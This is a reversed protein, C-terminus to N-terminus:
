NLTGHVWQASYLLDHIFFQHDTLFQNDSSFSLSKKDLLKFGLSPMVVIEIKLGNVLVNSVPGFYTANSWLVGESKGAFAVESGYSVFYYDVFVPNGDPSPASCLVKKVVPNEWVRCYFSFPLKENEFIKSAKVSQIYDSKGIVVQNKSNVAFSFDIKKGILKAVKSFNEFDTKKIERVNWDYVSLDSVKYDPPFATIVGAKLNKSLNFIKRCPQLAIRKGDQVISKGDKHLITSKLKGELIEGDLSLVRIQKYNDCNFQRMAVQNNRVGDNTLGYFRLSKM